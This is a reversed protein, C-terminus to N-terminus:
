SGSLIPACLARAAITIRQVFDERTPCSHKLGRATAQLSEALQRADLGIAAYSSMLPSDRLAASLADVLEREYREFIAGALTGGVEALDAAGAGIMGVYRGMWEDMAGILRAELPLSRDALVARASAVNNSLANEVTARFLDEKTAFHLYLAQRSVHAAQAVEEMSTKRFGYRSFVSLAAECLKGRRTEEPSKQMPDSM